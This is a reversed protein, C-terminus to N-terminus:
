HRKYQWVLFCGAAGVILVINIAIAVNMWAPRSESEATDELREAARGSHDHNARRAVM